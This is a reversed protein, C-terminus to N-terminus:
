LNRVVWSARSVVTDHGEFDERWPAEPPWEPPRSATGFAASGGTSLVWAELLRKSPTWEFWMELIGDLLPQGAEWRRRLTEGYLTSHRVQFREGRLFHMEDWPLLPAKASVAAQLVVTNGFRGSLYLPLKMFPFVVWSWLDDRTGPRLGDAAGTMAEAPFLELSCSVGAEMALPRGERLKAQLRSPVAYLLVLGRGRRVNEKEPVPNWLTPYGEWVQVPGQSWFAPPPASPQGAGFAQRLEQTSGGPLGLGAHTVRPELLSLANQGREWALTRNSLRTTLLLIHRGGQLLAAGLAATILAACLTETM